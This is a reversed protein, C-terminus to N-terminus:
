LHNQNIPAGQAEMEELSLGEPKGEGSAEVRERSM